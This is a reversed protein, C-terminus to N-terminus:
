KTELPGKWGRKSQSKLGKSLHFDALLAAYARFQLWGHQTCWRSHAETITTKCLLDKIQLSGTQGKDSKTLDCGLHGPLVAVERHQPLHNHIAVMQKQVNLIFLCNLKRLLRQHPIKALLKRFVAFATISASHSKASLWLEDWLSTRGGAKGALFLKPTYFSFPRKGKLTLLVEENNPLLSTM